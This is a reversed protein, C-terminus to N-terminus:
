VGEERQNGGREFDPKRPAMGERSDITLDKTLEQVFCKKRKKGSKQGM